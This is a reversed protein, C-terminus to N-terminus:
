RVTPANYGREYEKTMLHVINVGREYARSVNRARLIPRHSYWKRCLPTWGDLEGKAHWNLV